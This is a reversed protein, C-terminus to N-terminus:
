SLISGREDVRRGSSLTSGLIDRLHETTDGVLEDYKVQSGVHSRHDAIQSQRRMMRDLFNGYATQDYGMCDRIGTSIPSINETSM